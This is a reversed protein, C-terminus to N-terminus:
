LSYVTKERPLENSVRVIRNSSALYVLSRRHSDLEKEEVLKFSMIILIDGKQALHAAAGNVYVAGESGEIVYTEFRNGNSLNSVLVKEGPYLGAARIIDKGLTLSGEYDLRSEVVRAGHVKSKLVSLFGM